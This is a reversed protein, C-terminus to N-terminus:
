RIFDTVLEHRIHLWNDIDLGLAIANKRMQSGFKQNREKPDEAQEATEEPASSRELDDAVNGFAESGTPENWRREFEAM